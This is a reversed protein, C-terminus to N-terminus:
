GSALAPYPARVEEQARDQRSKLSWSRGTPIIRRERQRVAAVAKVLLYLMVVKGISSGSL